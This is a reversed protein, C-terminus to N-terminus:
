NAVARKIKKIYYKLINECVAQFKSPILTLHRTALLALIILVGMAFWMTFITDLNFSFSNDFLTTTWTWHGIESM